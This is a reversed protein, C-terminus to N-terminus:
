EGKLPIVLHIKTGQGPASDIQIQGQCQVARERMSQLGLHGPYAALPDFGIGNDTIELCIQSESCELVLTVQTAHAHKVINHIAEQSIRYLIEKVGLSVDPEPCFSAQVAMQHRTHLVAVQKELAAVLGDTRLSEPRLEFILARMEVQGAEALRNVYDLADAMQSPDRELATRATKAGLGISYLVQSVSDHLERALRQREELVALQGAQEYLRANEIAVAVQQAFTLALRSDEDRYYHPDQHVFVLMGTARDKIVLPVGLWCLSRISCANDPYAEGATWDWEIVPQLSEIVQNQHREDLWSFTPAGGTTDTSEAPLGGGAASALILKGTEDLRFVYASTYDLVPKIETLILGLLPDLALTSGIRRSVDLLTSLEHTREQVRQELVQQAAAIERTRQAVAQALRGQRNVTLYVLVAILGVIVLSNLRFVDAQSHVAAAWGEQPAGGLEWAGEPLGITQVVPDRQWVEGSGFFTHGLSDRLAMDLEGTLGVLGSDKLVTNMDVAISVLGWLDKGRYVAQWATLGFGGQRLEGPQGLTIGGNRIARQVDNRTAPDPANLIDYGSLLSSDSIPYIYRAIGEPAIMLTRVGTSNFYVGASYVEFPRDFTTDPWETRTFAYLGQLLAIRQDVASALGYARASIQEAAKAREQQILNAQYWKGLIYWVPLLVLLALLVALLSGGQPTRLQRWLAKM